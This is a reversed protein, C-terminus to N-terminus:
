GNFVVECLEAFADELAEIREEDNVSEKLKKPEFQEKILDLKSMLKEKNTM